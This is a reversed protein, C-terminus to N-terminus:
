IGPTQWIHFISFTNKRSMGAYTHYALPIYGFVTTKCMERLGTSGGEHSM